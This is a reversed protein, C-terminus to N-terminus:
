PESRYAGPGYQDERLRVERPEAGIEGDLLSCYKAPSRWMQSGACLYGARLKEIDLDPRARRESVALQFFGEAKAGALLRAEPPNRIDVAYGALREMDGMQLVRDIEPKVRREIRDRPQADHVGVGAYTEIVPIDSM